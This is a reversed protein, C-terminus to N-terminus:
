DIAKTTIMGSKDTTNIYTKYSQPFLYISFIFLCAGIDDEIRAKQTSM